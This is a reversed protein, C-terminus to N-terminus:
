SYPIISKPPNIATSFKITVYITVKLNFQQNHIKLFVNKEQLKYWWIYKGRPGGKKPFGTRNDADMDAELVSVLPGM